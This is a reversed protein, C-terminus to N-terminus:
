KVERHGAEEPDASNNVTSLGPLKLQLYIVIVSALPKKWSVM